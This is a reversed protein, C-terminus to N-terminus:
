AIEQQSSAPDRIKKPGSAAAPAGTNRTFSITGVDPPLDHNGKAESHHHDHHVGVMVLQRRKWATLVVVAACGLTDVASVAFLVCCCVM